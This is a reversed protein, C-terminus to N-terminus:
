TGCSDAINGCDSASARGPSGVHQHRLSPHDLAEDALLDVLSQLQRHVAAFIGIAQADIGGIRAREHARGEDGVSSACHSAQRAPPARRIKL